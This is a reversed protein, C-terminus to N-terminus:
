PRSVTKALGRFILAAGFLWGAAFIWRGSLISAVALFLIAMALVVALWRIAARETEENM